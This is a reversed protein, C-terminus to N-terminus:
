IAHSVVSSLSILYRLWITLNRSSFIYGLCSSGGKTWFSYPSLSGLLSPSVTSGDYRFCFNVVKWDVLVYCLSTCNLRYWWSYAFHRPQDSPDPPDTTQEVMSASWHFLISSSRLYSISCTLLILSSSAKLSALGFVSLTYDDNMSSIRCAGSGDLNWSGGIIMYLLPTPSRTSCMFDNWLNISIWSTSWKAVYRTNENMNNQIAILHNLFNLSLDIPENEWSFWINM